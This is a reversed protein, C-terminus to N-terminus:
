LITEVNEREFLYSSLRASKRREAALADLATKLDSQTSALDKQSQALLAADTPGARPPPLKRKVPTTKCKQQRRLLADAEATFRRLSPQDM